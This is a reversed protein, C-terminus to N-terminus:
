KMVITTVSTKLDANLRDESLGPIDGRKVAKTGVGCKFSDTTGDKYTVTCTIEVNKLIDAKVAAEEDPLYKTGFMAEYDKKSVVKGEGSISIHQNKAEQKDAAITFSKCCTSDYEVKNDDYYSLSPTNLKEPAKVVNQLNNEDKPHQIVFAGENIKYTVTKINAGQCVIPLDICYDIKRTEDKGGWGSAGDSQVLIAEAGKKLEKTEAAKVVVTYGNAIQAIPNQTSTVTTDNGGAIHGLTGSGVVAVIAACAAVAAVPRIFKNVRMIRAGKVQDAESKCINGSKLETDEVRIEPTLAQHLIRDLEKDTMNQM